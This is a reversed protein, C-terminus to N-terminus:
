HKKYRYEAQQLYPKSGNLLQSIVNLTAMRGKPSPEM